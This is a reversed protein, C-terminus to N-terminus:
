STAPAEPILLDELAVEPHLRDLDVIPAVRPLDADGRWQWLHWRTWGVPVQPEEVGYEAIWLPYDGFRDDMQRNWFTPGTYIIPKAGVEQEVARLFVLLRDALDAPPRAGSQKFPTEVDVVPVLDGPEFLVRSLFIRAQAEPDDDPVFFHYAGRRLGAQRMREWHSIFFPDLFDVGATALTLGFHQGQAAAEGWDVRGSHYSVDVGRILAADAPLPPLPPRPPEARTGTWAVPVDRGTVTGDGLQGLENAGWCVLTGDQREACAHNGAVHLGVVGTELGEVTRPPAAPSDPEPPADDFGRGLEGLENSGWCQVAGTELLACSFSLGVDVARVPGALGEVRVAGASTTRTGDGLQGFRNAGWCAVGGDSLRACSHYGGADIQTAPAPLGQVLVPMASDLSEQQGLQGSSGDGWCSVSGDQLLACTHLGGASVQAAPASLGEVPAVGPGPAARGLQDLADDGWCLVRGDETVGCTHLWGADISGLAPAGDVPAPEPRCPRGHCREREVAPEAGMQGESADGWCSPRGDAGLLCGHRLGFTLDRAEVLASPARPVQFLADGACAPVAGTVCTAQPGLAVLRPLPPAATGQGHASDRGPRCSVAVLVLAGAILYVAVPRATVLGPLRRDM